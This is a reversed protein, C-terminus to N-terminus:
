INCGLSPKQVQDILKHSLLNEMANRLDKGSVPIQNGPRSDDLQGRYVCKLQADFLFFDPTCAAHYAKAIEQTEDYLYPFPYQLHIATQKMKEPSDEPYEKADNSCIAIFHIGRNQYDNALQVLELQVHKVFPCHNCIFMVVTGLAGKLEQLSAVKGKVVDLLNFAPAITNLPLMTSNTLSM